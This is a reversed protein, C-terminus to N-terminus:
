SAIKRWYPNVLRTALSNMRPDVCGLRNRRKLNMKALRKEAKSGFANALLVLNEAHMNLEENQKYLHLSM